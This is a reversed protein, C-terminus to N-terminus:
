NNNGDYDRRILYDVKDRIYKVNEHILIIREKNKYVEIIAKGSATVSAIILGALVTAIIRTAIKNMSGGFIPTGM